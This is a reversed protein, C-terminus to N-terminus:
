AIRRTVGRAALLGVAGVLLLSWTAPEPVASGSVQPSNFINGDVSTFNFYPIVLGNSDEIEISDIALTDSANALADSPGQQVPPATAEATLGLSMNFTEPIGNIIDDFYQNAIPLTLSFASSFGGAGCGGGLNVAAGASVDVGGLNSIQTDASCTGAFGASSSADGTFGLSPNATPFFNAGAEVTVSSFAPGHNAFVSSFHGNIVLRIGFRYVYPFLTPNHFTFLGEPSPDFTVYNDIAASSFSNYGNQGNAFAGISFFNAHTNGNYRGITDISKIGGSQLNLCLSDCFITNSQKSIDTTQFGSATNQTQSIDVEQSYTTRLPTALVRGGLLLGDLIVISALGLLPRIMKASM